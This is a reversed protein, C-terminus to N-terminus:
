NLLENKLSNYNDLVKRHNEQLNNIINKAQEIAKKRKHRINNDSLIDIMGIYFVRRVANKRMEKKYDLSSNFKPASSSYDFYKLISRNFTTFLDNNSYDYYSYVKDRLDDSFLSDTKISELIPHNENLPIKKNSILEIYSKFTSLYNSHVNEFDKIAPELFNEFLNKKNDKYLKVGDKLTNLIKFITDIM